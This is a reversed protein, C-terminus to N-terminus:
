DEEEKEKHRGEGQKGRGVDGIKMCMACEVSTDAAKDRPEEEM